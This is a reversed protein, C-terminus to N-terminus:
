FQIGVRLGVNNEEYYVNTGYTFAVTLTYNKKIPKSIGIGPSLYCGDNEIDYGVKMEIYPDVKLKKKIVYSRFDAYIPLMGCEYGIGGGVFFMRNIQFGHTSFLGLKIEECSIDRLLGVNVDGKYGRTRYNSSQANSVISCLAFLLLLIKKM